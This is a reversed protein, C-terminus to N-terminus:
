NSDNETVESNLREIWDREVWPKLDPNYFTSPYSPWVGTRVCERWISLAVTIKSEGIALYGPTCNILSCAFPANSEQCLYVFPADIGTIAMLGRRYWAAQVYAQMGDLVRRTADAPACSAPSTKLDLILKNQKHLLDPRARCWVDEEKWLLTMEPDFDDITLGCLEPCDAIAKHAMTVMKRVDAAVHSLLPILGQERAEQAEEKAAKTRWSDADVVHIKDIGELILKHAATGVDFKSDDDPEWDPNLRSNEHWAHLPSKSLLTVIAHSSLSPTPCPDAHYEDESMKYIGIKM